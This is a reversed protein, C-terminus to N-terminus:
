KIGDRRSEPAIKQVPKYPAKPIDFPNLSVGLPVSSCAIGFRSLSLYDPRYAQIPPYLTASVDNLTCSNAPTFCGALKASGSAQVTQDQSPVSHRWHPAAGYWSWLASSKM